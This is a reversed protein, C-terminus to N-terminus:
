ACTLSGARRLLLLLMGPGSVSRLLLRRSQLLFALARGAAPARGAGAEGGTGVLLPQWAPVPDKSGRAPAPRDASSADVHFVGYNISFAELLYLCPDQTEGGSPVSGRAERSRGSPLQSPSSFPRGGLSSGTLSSRQLTLM